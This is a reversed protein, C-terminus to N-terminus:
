QAPGWDAYSASINATKKECHGDAFCANTGSSSNDYTGAPHRYQVGSPESQFVAGCGEIIFYKNSPNKISTYSVGTYRWMTTDWCTGCAIEGNVGYSTGGKGAIWWAWKNADGSFSPATDSPCLFLAVTQANTGATDSAYMGTAGNFGWISGTYTTAGVYPAICNNYYPWGGARGGAPCYQNSDGIYMFSCTGLQKMNSTCKIAQAAARAKSLAPLLMSALIAIIAIVVLLEILTFVKKMKSGKQKRNNKEM